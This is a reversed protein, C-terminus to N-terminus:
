KLSPFSFTPLFNTAIPAEFADFQINLDFRGDGNVDRFEERLTGQRFIQRLLVVNTGNPQWDSQVIIGNTYVRSVDRVGNYDTDQEARSVSGRPSYAIWTDVRGDFNDDAEGRWPVDDRYFVWEDWRGDGNRDWRSETTRGNRSIVEQDIIGDQDNDYQYTRDRHEEYHKYSFYMLAGLIVGVAVGSNFRYVRPLPSSARTSGASPPQVETLPETETPMEQLIKRADEAVTPDVLLKIVGLPPYMGGCDDSTVLCEIGHGRLDSAALAATITNGFTKVLIANEPDM